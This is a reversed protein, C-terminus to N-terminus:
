KVWVKSKTEFYVPKNKLITITKEPTLQNFQGSIRSMRNSLVFDLKNEEIDNKYTKLEPLANLVFITDNDNSIMDFYKEYVPDTIELPQLEFQDFQPNTYVM